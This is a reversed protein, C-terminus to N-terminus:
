CHTALGPRNARYLMGCVLALGLGLLGFTSPEPTPNVATGTFGTAYTGITTHAGTTLNITIITPTGAGAPDTFGYMTGNLYALGYVNAFGLNKSITTVVDTTTNIEFLQDNGGTGGTGTLFLDTTTSDFSLDGSSTFASGTTTIKTAAGTTTNITFLSGVGAAYMTAGNNSYGLANLAVGGLGTIAIAPGSTFTNLNVNYIDAGALAFLGSTVSYALDYTNTPLATTTGVETESSGVTPNIEFLERDNPGGSGYVVSARAIGGTVLFVLPAIALWIRPRGGNGNGRRRWQGNVM